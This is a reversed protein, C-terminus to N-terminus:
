RWENKRLLAVDLRERQEPTLINHVHELADLALRAPEGEIGTLAAQARAKDFPEAAIAALAEDLGSWRTWGAGLAKAVDAFAERAEEMQRQNLEMPGLLSHLRQPTDVM